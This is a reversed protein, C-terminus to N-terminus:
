GLDVPATVASRWASNGIHLALHFVPDFADLPFGALNMGGVDATFPPLYYGRLTPVKDPAVSRPDLVHEPPVPWRGPPPDSSGDRANKGNTWFASLDGAGPFLGGIGVIAIREEPRPVRTLERDPVTPGIRVPGRAPRPPVGRELVPRDRARR